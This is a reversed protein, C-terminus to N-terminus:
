RLILKEKSPVPAGKWRLLIISIDDLQQHYWNKVEALINAKIEEVSLDAYRILAQGLREMDYQEEQANAAEVLGDTYLLLIDEPQLAFRIDETMESIDPVLGTWFGPIELREV